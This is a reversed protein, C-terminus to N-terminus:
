LIIDQFTPTLKLYLASASIYIYRTPQNCNHNSDYNYVPNKLCLCTKHQKTLLYNLCGNCMHQLSKKPVRGCVCM